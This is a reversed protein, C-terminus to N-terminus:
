KVFANTNEIILYGHVYMIKYQGTNKKNELRKM